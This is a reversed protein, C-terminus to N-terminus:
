LAVVGGLDEGIGVLHTKVPTRRYTLGGVDRTSTATV